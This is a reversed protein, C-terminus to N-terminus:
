KHSLIYKLCLLLMIASILGKVNFLLDNDCESAGLLTAFIFMIFVISKSKM